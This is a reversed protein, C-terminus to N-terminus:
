PIPGVQTSINNESSYFPPVDLHWVLIKSCQSPVGEMQSEDEVVQEIFSSAHFDKNDTHILRIPELTPRHWRKPDWLITSNFAFGSMKAHFRRNKEPVRHSHWGIVQSGNCIPGDFIVDNRSEVLKGVMWTGFRRIQRMQEFLDLTYISDDDAFHVIGDLHHTEIHSLAVNRLHMDRDNMDTFNQSCVLHRFMVGTNRLLEATQAAQSTMEVVIWLLPPRVLKLTHALRNLYYAQTPRGYTPTVIILFNQFSINSSEGVSKNSFADVPIEDKLENTIVPQMSTINDNMELSEVAPTINGPLEYVHIRDDHGFMDTSFLQHKSMLNLSLTPSAFPTLGVFTGLLFCVVFHFLARRWSQGKSKSRELPRSSRQTFLGLLLAQARYLVFDLSGFAPSSVGNPQSNQSNCSSSKSLPSAVNCAEGNLSIGPRPVPSLTRRISAMSVSWKFDLRDWHKIQYSTDPLLKVYFLFGFLDACKREVFNGEINRRLACGAM